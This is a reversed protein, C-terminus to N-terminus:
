VPFLIIWFKSEKKKFLDLELELISNWCDLPPEFTYSLPVAARKIDEDLVDRYEELDVARIETHSNSGISHSAAM